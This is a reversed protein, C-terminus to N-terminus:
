HFRQYQCTETTYQAKKNEIDVTKRRMHLAKFTFICRYRLPQLSFSEFDNSPQDRGHTRIGGAAGSFLRRHIEGRAKKANSIYPMWDSWVTEWQIRGCCRMLGLPRTSRELANESPVQPGWIWSIMQSFYGGLKRRMIRQQLPNKTVGDFIFNATVLWRLILGTFCRVDLWFFTGLQFAANGFFRRGTAPSPM